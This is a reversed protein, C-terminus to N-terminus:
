NLPLSEPTLEKNPELVIVKKSKSYVTCFAILYAIIAVLVNSLIIIKTSIASEKYTRANNIKAQTNTLYNENFEKILENYDNYISDLENSIETIQTEIYNIYNEDAPSLTPLTTFVNNDKDYVGGLTILYNRYQIEKREANGRLNLLNYYDKVISEYGASNIIISNNSTSTSDPLIIDPYDTLAQKADKIMESYADKKSKSNNMNYYLFLVLGNTNNEIKNNIIIPKLNELRLSLSKVKGEIDKFSIGDQTNKFATLDASSAIENTVATYVNDANSQMEEIIQFYELIKLDETTTNAINIEKLKSPAFSNLLEIAIDNLLANLEEESLGTEDKRLTLIFSTPTYNSDLSVNKPVNANIILNDILIEEIDENTIYNENKSLVNSIALSKNKNLDSMTINSSQTISFGTKSSISYTSVRAILLSTTVLTVAVLVYILARLFSKKMIGFIKSFTIEDTQNDM